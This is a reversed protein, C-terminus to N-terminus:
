CCGPGPISAAVQLTGLLCEGEPGEPEWAGVAWQAGRGVVEPKQLEKGWCCAAQFMAWADAAMLRMKEAHVTCDADVDICRMVGMEYGVTLRPMACPQRQQELDPQLFNAAPFMPLMKVYARGKCCIDEGSSTITEAVDSGAQLCCDAVMPLTDDADTNAQLANCLCLLLQQAVTYATHLAM